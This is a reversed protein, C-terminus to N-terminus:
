RFFYFINKLISLINEINDLTLKTINFNKQLIVIGIELIIRLLSNWKNETYNSFLERIIKRRFLKEFDLTM